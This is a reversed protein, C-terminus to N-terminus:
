RGFISVINTEHGKNLVISRSYHLLRDLAQTTSDVVDDHSGNPFMLLEHEFEPLWVAFRPLFVRGSEFLPTVAHARAIKDRDVKVAHIPIRTERKLEQYLSIGSAKNEICVVNPQWKNAQQKAAAKLEPFECKGRWMDLLYYGKPGIGWTTGVSYDSDSKATFATDWSQLIYSVELRKTKENRPLEDYDQFQEKKFIGGEAATPRQQYLAAWASSGETKQIQKLVPLPYRKPWLAEGERRYEEDREAIAPLSVVSWNEHQHENLLWGALDDEHWRTQVVIIKGDPMLRTYINQRYWEKLSSRTIESRAEAAGKLTDDLICLNGGRGTISAGAGVAFYSGGSVTNFRHMAASDSALQAAPFAARHIDSQCINRVKRGFDSALEQSYSAGIVYHDPNRGLYWAPFFEATFFSKSHRPPMFVMLRKIDGREVAELHRILLNVHWPLELKPYQAAAYVALDNRLMESIDPIEGNNYNSKWKTTPPM